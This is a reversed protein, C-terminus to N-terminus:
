PASVRPGIKMGMTPGPGSETGGRIWEVVRRPPGEGFDGPSNPLFYLLFPLALFAFLLILALPPIRGDPASM